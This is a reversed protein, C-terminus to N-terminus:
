KAYKELGSTDGRGIQDFMDKAAKTDWLVSSGAPTSADPNSIPVSLSLAKGRAFGLGGRVAAFMDALSTDDGKRLSEAVASNLRWWRVPNLVTMPSAVEKAVAALVQRQRQVRGLDGLPDGHRMRVYDLAVRGNLTQCGAPLNLNSEPVVLPRDLCVEVGDLAEVTKAFGGFGVELYGDLRVGTAQEVTAVLLDPGGLSYAANLKNRNHGPIVLYSDRPLSILVPRGVLPIFYIMMTDTRTGGADSESGTGLRDQEAPTLGARSDTGVLLLATGIQGKPRTGTPTADVRVIQNWALLPVGVLYVLWALTLVLLVRLARPWRRRSRPAPVPLGRAGPPVAASAGVVTRPHDRGPAPVPPRRIPKIPKAAPSPVSEDAYLWDLDARRQENDNEGAMSVVTVGGM